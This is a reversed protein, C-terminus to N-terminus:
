HSTVTSGFQVVCRDPQVDFAVLQDSQLWAILSDGLLERRWGTALLQSQNRFSSKPVVIANAVGAKFCRDRILLYLFESTMLEEPTEERWPKLHQIAEKEEENMATAFLKEWHQGHSQILKDSIMRNQRLHSLGQHMGKVIPVMTKKPLITEQPVNRKQAAASRWQMLRVFFVREQRTLQTHTTSKFLDKLSDPAYYDAMTWKAVEEQCWRLRDHKQLQETLRQWLLPLHLVDNLAYDVQQKTMPRAQWDTVSFSKNLTIQLEKEVLNQFSIPYTHSLFGMAIQTDFLNRPYIGYLSNLIRYDNDGAHTIKTIRDDILMALFPELQPLAIPDILYIGNETIVQILCLMPYFRRETIFETDFGMWTIARNAQAFAELQQTTEVYQYQGQSDKQIM